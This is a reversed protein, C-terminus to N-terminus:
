GTLSAFLAPLREPLRQVNDLVTYRNAGFIRRVYDDANPDLTLCYTTVGRSALEEVAQRSDYRLYQPDREDIDAPEGDTVLLLLKKQEPQSLLHQGGHRIAAGMRTSLGGQMGAMRAKTEADFRQDFDKFRYYQVDHRGDSAFGHIAFPDGIGDIAWSLLASAQRTLELVTQESGEVLENTSESLDLLLLVSLDRSKIVNRRTIRPDPQLGMRIDIMARIAADLDIEDGDELNRERIVGTPTLADIIQRIRSALPKHETMIADISDPDGRAQRREFVTVWDPRHLQVHYDWEHYHFPDSVPEKGELENITCAEQDLWFPTSLVWIEQADDGALECDVEHAMELASVYKRVQRQSAPLYDFEEKSWDIEEFEWIFRNDDRYPVGFTELVRLAPISERGQLRNYLDIGLDWSLQQNEHEDAIRGFFVDRVEALLEDELTHGADLLGCALQELMAVVPHEYVQGSNALHLRRWLKRLGPFERIACYEVRADEFLAIMFMQAPNLAEASIAANSYVIHSAAHAVTARYVEAGSVGHYDDFADPVHLVQREIYPRLGQRTEYDGSTPRMFFNRGWFARLYFNLKRHTDIFLTGRREKQLVARSDKSRLSFYEQLQEFDRAHAQAGWMAWRRLGGLTLVQLLDDLHDLMGRLGRPAKASLQHILGLFQRLLEEDGLRRAAAPLNAFMLTIIEGSVMSTLKLASTVVEPVIDEGVEKVVAPMGEIYSIVLGAGRGLQSLARAGEMWNSLGRPSMVRAADQFTAELVDHIRPDVAELAERYDEINVSM